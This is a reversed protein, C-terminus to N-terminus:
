WSLINYSVGVGVYPLVGNKDATAGAQFGIGWRTKKVQIVPIEKTIVMEQTFHIVSDVQPNVGSAYVRALSDEWTVQQRELLVYLTDRLRLTDGVPYPISDVVRRTIYKPETVRLTDRIFLTDVKPTPPEGPANRPCRRGVLFGILIAVVIGMGMLIYKEPKM